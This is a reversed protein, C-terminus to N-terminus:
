AAGPPVMGCFEAWARINSELRLTTGLSIAPPGVILESPDIFLTILDAYTQAFSAQLIIQLASPADSRSLNCSEQFSVRAAALYQGWFDGTEYRDIVWQELYGLAVALGVQDDISLYYNLLTIASEPDSFAIAPNASIDLATLVAAPLAM